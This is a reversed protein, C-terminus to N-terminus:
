EDDHDLFDLTNGIAQLIKHIYLDRVLWAVQILFYIFIERVFCVLWIDCQVKSINIANLVSYVALSACNALIYRGPAKINMMLWIFLRSFFYTGLAAGIFFVVDLPGFLYIIGVCIILQAIIFSLLKNTFKRNNESNKLAAM